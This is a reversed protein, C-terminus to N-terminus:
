KAIAVRVANWNNESSGLGYLMVRFDRPRNKIIKTLGVQADQPPSDAGNIVFLFEDGRRIVALVPNKLKTGPKRNDLREGRGDIIAHAELVGEDTFLWEIRNHGAGDFLITLAAFSKREDKRGAEPM